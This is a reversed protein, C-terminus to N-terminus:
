APSCTSSCALCPRVSHPTSPVYVLSSATDHLEDAQEGAGMPQARRCPATTNPCRRRTARCSRSIRRSKAGSLGPAHGAAAAARPRAAAHRAADHRPDLDAGSKLTQGSNGILFHAMVGNGDFSQGIGALGTFAYWFEKYAEVGSTSAGDQLKTNGAPFFVKTLCKSFADTQKFFPTREGIFKALTPASENLGQAVGGLESPALSAQM